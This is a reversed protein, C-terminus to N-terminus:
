KTVHKSGQKTRVFLLRRKMEEEFAFFSNWDHARGSEKQTRPGRPVPCAPLADNCPPLPCCILEEDREESDFPWRLAPAHSENEVNSPADDTHAPTAGRKEEYLLLESAQEGDPTTGAGSNEGRNGDWGGADERAMERRGELMDADMRTAFQEELRRRVAETDMEEAEASSGEQSTIGEVGEGAQGEGRQQDDMLPNIDHASAGGGRQEGGQGGALGALQQLPVGDDTALQGAVLDGGDIDPQGAQSPKSADGAERKEAAVGWKEEVESIAVWQQELEEEEEEEGGGDGQIRVEEGEGRLDGDDEEEDEEREEEVGREFFRRNAEDEVDSIAGDDDKKKLADMQPKGGGEGGRETKLDKEGEGEGRRGPLPLRKLWSRLLRLEEDRQSRVNAWEDMREREEWVSSARSWDWM